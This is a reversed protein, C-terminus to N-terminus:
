LTYSDGVTTSVVQDIADYAQVAGDYWCYATGSFNACNEVQGGAYAGYVNAYTWGVPAAANGSSTYTGGAFNGNVLLNGSSTTNNVLSVNSFSIFAPDERFAITIDTSTLAATFTVSEEVPVGHNITQAPTGTEGGGLDLIAGSPPPENVAQALAPAAGLLLATAAVGTLFKKRKLSITATSASLFPAIISGAVKM